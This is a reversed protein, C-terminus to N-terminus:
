GELYPPDGALLLGLYEFPSFIALPLRLQHFDREKCNDLVCFWSAHAM